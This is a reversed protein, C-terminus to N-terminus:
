RVTGLRAQIVPPTTAQRDNDCGLLALVWRWATGIIVTLSQSDRSYRLAEVARRFAARHFGASTSDYSLQRCTRALNAHVARRQDRTPNPFSADITKLLGYMRQTNRQKNLRALSSPTFHHLALSEDVFGSRCRRAVHLYFLWEEAYSQSEDFRIRDGLVERRAMGVITAIFYGRILTDFLNEKCVYLGPLVSDAPVEWNPGPM